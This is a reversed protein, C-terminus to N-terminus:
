NLPQNLKPASGNRLTKALDIAEQATFSGSLQLDGNLIPERITPTQLLRGNIIIAIKRDINASTFQALSERGEPTLTFKVYHWDFNPDFCPEAHAIQDASVFPTTAVLIDGENYNASPISRSPVRSTPDLVAFFGSDQQTFTAEDPAAQKTENASVQPPLARSCGGLVILFVLAICVFPKM